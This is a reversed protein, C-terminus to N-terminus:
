NILGCAVLTINFICPYCDSVISGDMFSPMCLSCVSRIPCGRYIFICMTSLIYIDSNTGVAVLFRSPSVSTTSTSEADLCLVYSNNM